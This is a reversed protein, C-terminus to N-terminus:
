SRHLRAPRGPGPTAVPLVYAVLVGLQGEFAGVSLARLTRGRERLEARALTRAASATRARVRFPDLKVAPWPAGDPGLGPRAEWVRVEFQRDRSPDM